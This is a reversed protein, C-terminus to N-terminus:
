NADEDSGASTRIRRVFIELWDRAQTVELACPDYHLTIHLRGAYVTVGFAACESFQFAATQFGWEKEASGYISQRQAGVHHLSVILFQRQM